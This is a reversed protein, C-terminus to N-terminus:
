ERPPFDFHTEFLTVLEEAMAAENPGDVQITVTDGQCLGLAIVSMISDAELETSGNGLRVRGEYQEIAKMIIGSPRLHIGASNKVEAKKTVM